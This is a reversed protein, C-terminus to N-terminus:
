LPVYHHGALTSEYALINKNGITHLTPDLAPQETASCCTAYRSSSTAAADRAASALWWPHYPPISADSTAPRNPRPHTNGTRPTRTGNVYCRTRCPGIQTPAAVAILGTSAIWRRRAPTTPQALSRRPRRRTHRRSTALPSPRSSPRLRRCANHPPSQNTCCVSAVMARVGARHSRSPGTQQPVAEM